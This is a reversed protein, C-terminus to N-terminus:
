KQARKRKMENAYLKRYEDDISQIISLGIDPEILVREIEREIDISKIVSDTSTERRLRWFANLLQRHLSELEPRNSWFEYIADEGM